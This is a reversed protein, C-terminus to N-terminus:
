APTATDDIVSVAFPAFPAYSNHMLASQILHLHDVAVPTHTHQKPDLAQPILNYADTIAGRILHLGPDVDNSLLNDLKDGYTNQVTLLQNRVGPQSRNTAFGVTAQSVDWIAHLALPVFRRAAAVQGHKPVELFLIVPHTADPLLVRCIYCSLVRAIINARYQEEHRTKSLNFMPLNPPTPDWIKAIGPDNINTYNSRDVRSVRWPIKSNYM